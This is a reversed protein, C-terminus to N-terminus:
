EFAGLYRDVAADAIADNMEDITLPEGEWKIIGKLDRITGTLPIFAMVGDSRQAFEVRTGTQIELMERVEQPITIQGKSTVTAISM